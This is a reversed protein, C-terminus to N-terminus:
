QKQISSILGSTSVNHEFEVRVVKGGAAKVEPAGVIDEEAWDAGKVLVDPLISTILKYPTDEDFVVVYDVCSLSSLIRARDQETNVPRGDGKIARVSRDSNLGVVLCDASSRAQELYDVHGSHLIDFCGNTFAVKSQQQRIAGIINLLLPLDVIKESDRVPRPREGAPCFRSRVMSLDNEDFDTVLAEEGDGAKLLVTGDPGVVMSSGGLEHEGTSGYSNCAVVFVQNEIARARVLSQWHDIRAKPWEASVLLLQAGQFAQQRGLEPFRLDYCVLGGIVGLPTSVPYFTGGPSFFRDEQWLAFLHQKRYSGLEGEPGVFYLTNYIAEEQRNGMPKEMLSGALFIDYQAALSAVEKLLYPTQDALDEAHEYDFGYAWLEPLVLITKKGPSLEDLLNRVKELNATPNGFAIEFQLFGAQSFLQNSM